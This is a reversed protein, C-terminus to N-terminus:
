VWTSPAEHGDVQTVLATTTTKGPSDSRKSSGMESMMLRQPSTLHRGTPTKEWASQSGTTSGPKPINLKIMATVDRRFSDNMFFYIIPNYISASKAFMSPLISLIVPLSPLDGFTAYLSVLSYPTWALIFGVGVMVAIKTLKKEAGRKDDTSSNSCNLSQRSSRVTRVICIYCFTIIAVPIFYCFAFLTMMFAARQELERVRLKTDHGSSQAENCVGKVGVRCRQRQDEGYPAEIMRGLDSRSRTVLNCPQDAAGTLTKIGGERSDQATKYDLTCAVDFPERTYRSWGCVPMLAWFAGFLWTGALSLWASTWSMDTVPTCAHAALRFCMHKRSTSQGQHSFRQFSALLPSCPVVLVPRGLAVVRRAPRLVGRPATDLLTYIHTATSPEHLGASLPPCSVWMVATVKVQKSRCVKLYRVLALATINAINVLGLMFRFFAYSICGADGFLWGHNFSSAVMWPYACLLLMLDSVALNITFVEPPKIKKRRYYSVLLVFTNGILNCLGPQYYCRLHILGCGFRPYFAAPPTMGQAPPNAIAWEKQLLPTNGAPPYTRVQFIAPNHGCKM